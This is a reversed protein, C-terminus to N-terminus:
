EDVTGLDDSRDNQFRLSFWEVFDDLRQPEICVINRVSSIIGPKRCIRINM